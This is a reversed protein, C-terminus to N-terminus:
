KLGGTAQRWFSRIEWALWKKEAEDLGSGFVIPRERGGLIIGIGYVPRDNQTYVQELRVDQIDAVRCTRQHRKGFLERRLILTERDMALSTTGFVVWLAIGILVLGILPFIAVFAGVPLAGAPAGALFAVAATWSIANWFLVFLTFFCGTGRLGTKPIILALRADGERTFLVRTREPREVPGV